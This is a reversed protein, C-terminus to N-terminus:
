VKVKQADALFPAVRFLNDANTKTFGCALVTTVGEQVSMLSVTAGEKIAGVGVCLSNLAEKHALSRQALVFDEIASETAHLTYFTGMDGGCNHHDVSAAYYTDLLDQLVNM